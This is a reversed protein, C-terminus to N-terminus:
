NTELITDINAERIKSKIWSPENELDDETINLKALSSIFGKQLKRYLFDNILRTLSM